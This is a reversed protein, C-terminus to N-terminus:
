YRLTLRNIRRGSNMHRLLLDYLIHRAPGGSSALQKVHPDNVPFKSLKQRTSADFFLKNGRWFDTHLSFLRALEFMFTNKIQPAQKRYEILNIPWCEDILVFFAKVNSRFLNLSITEAANAISAAMAPVTEGHARGIHRHLRSSVRLMQLATILEGRGMNQSWCVKRYLPFDRTNHCLGYLTLVAPNTDRMNRLHLNPSVRKVNKNLDTFRHREWLSDTGFHCTAFMRIPTNPSGELIRLATGVRQWGDIIYAPAKIIFDDEDTEFDEGRIGVEISPVVVGAKLADFVDARNGLPRQYEQDVKLFRLTDQDIRGNLVVAGPSNPDDDLSGNIIRVHPEVRTDLPARETETKSDDVLM